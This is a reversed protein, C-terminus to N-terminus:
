AELFGRMKGLGRSIKSRVTNENMHLMRGIERSNYGGFVRLSILMREEEGLRAFAKKVDAAEELDKQGGHLEQPLEVAKDVYEKLKQRCKNSLIKFIWGKFTEMSRLNHFGAYADAVTEGVVDEADQRNQLTYLAFKYLDQYIESYQQAFVEYAKAAEM